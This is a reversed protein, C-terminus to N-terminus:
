ITLCYMNRSNNSIQNEPWGLFEGTHEIIIQRHTQKDSQGHRSDYYRSFHYWQNKTHTHGYGWSGGLLLCSNQSMKTNEPGLM